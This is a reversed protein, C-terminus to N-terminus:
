GSGDLRRLRKLQISNNALVGFHWLRDRYVILIGM